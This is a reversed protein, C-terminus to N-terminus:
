KIARYEPHDKLIQKFLKEREKDSKESISPNKRISVIKNKPRRWKPVLMSRLFVDSIYQELHMGYPKVYGFMMVPIDILFVAYLLADSSLALARILVFYVIVDLIVAIIACILQRMTLPGVVKSEYTMIDKPMKVEIM